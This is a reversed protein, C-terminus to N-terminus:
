YEDDRECLRASVKIMDANNRRVGGKQLWPAVEANTNIAQKKKFRMNDHLTLVSHCVCM